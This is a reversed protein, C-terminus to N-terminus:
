NAIDFVYHFAFHNLGFTKQTKLKNKMEDFFNKSDVLPVFFIEQSGVFIVAYKGDTFFVTVVHWVIGAAMEATKAVSNTGFDGQM